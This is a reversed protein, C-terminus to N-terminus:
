NSYKDLHVDSISLWTSRCLLETAWGRSVSPGRSKGASASPARLGGGCRPDLFFPLPCANGRNVPPRNHKQHLTHSAPQIVLPLHMTRPCCTSLLLPHSVYKWLAALLSVADDQFWNCFPAVKLVLCYTFLGKIVLLCPIFQKVWDISIRGGEADYVAKIRTKM